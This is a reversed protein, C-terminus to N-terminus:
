HPSPLAGVRYFHHLQLPSSTPPLPLYILCCRHLFSPPLPSALENEVVTSTSAEALTGTPSTVVSTFSPPIALDIIGFFNFDGGSDRGGTYIGVGFDVPISGGSIFFGDDVLNGKLGAPGDMVGWAAAVIKASM